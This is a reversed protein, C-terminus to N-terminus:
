KLIILFKLFILILILYFTLRPPYPFTAYGCAGGRGAGNLKKFTVPIPIAKFLRPPTPLPAGRGSGAM